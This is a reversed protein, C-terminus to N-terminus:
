GRRRELLVLMMLGVVIREEELEEIEGVKEVIFKRGWFSPEKKLMAVVTGKEDMIKYAPNFLYGTLFNLVPIEGLLGDLVKVWANDERITFNLNPVADYIEYNAKWLSSWGKRGIKGYNNGEEDWFNYSASFDLWKNAKITTILESKTEDKYVKVEEKLKFMKQRVYAVQTGTADEAIFDNSLTSIKFTFKLPFALKKMIPYKSYLQCLFARLHM